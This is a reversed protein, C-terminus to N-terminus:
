ENGNSYETGSNVAILYSKYMNHLHLVWDNQLIEFLINIDDDNFAKKFDLVAVRTQLSFEADKLLSSLSFVDMQMPDEKTFTIKYKWM